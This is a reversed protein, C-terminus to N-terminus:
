LYLPLYKYPVKAHHGNLLIVTTPKSRPSLTEGAMSEQGPILGSDRGPWHAKFGILFRNTVEMIKQCTNCWHWIESSIDNDYSELKM